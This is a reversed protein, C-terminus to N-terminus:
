PFAVRRIKTHLPVNGDGIESALRRPFQTKGTGSPGHLLFGSNPFKQVPDRSRLFLVLDDFHPELEPPMIYEDSSLPDPLDSIFRSTRDRQGVVEAIDSFIQDYIGPLSAADAQAIRESGAAIVVRIRELGTISHALDTGSSLSSTRLDTNQGQATSQEPPNEPM